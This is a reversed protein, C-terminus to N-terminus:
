ESCVPLQYKVLGSCSPPQLQESNHAAEAAAPDTIAIVFHNQGIKDGGTVSHNQRIKDGGLKM